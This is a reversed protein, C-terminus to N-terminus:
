AARLETTARKRRPKARGKWRRHVWWYQSPFQRIMDSLRDNYWQTLSRVNSLHEGGQKPDAIGVVALEFHLPEDLRRMTVVLQPADSTLTFLATAKHCSAPRGLFDIWLGKDGAHQDGLIGITASQELLQAVVPACGNKDLLYQGQSERFRTIWAHLLPNDLPRAISHIPFGLMGAVWGSLEFNGFHGTVLIIPRNQLLYDVILRRDQFRIRQNFSFPHLKRPAHAVESVMLFLHRWMARATEQRQAVSWHPFAHRLNDDVVSRRIRLLDYFLTALAGAIAECSRLSISQVVCVFSRAVFYVIRDSWRIRREDM